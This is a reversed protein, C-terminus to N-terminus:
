EAERPTSKASTFPSFIGAWLVNRVPNTPPILPNINACTNTLYYFPSVSAWFPQTGPELSCNTTTGCNPERAISRWAGEIWGDGSCTLSRATAEEVSEGGVGEQVKWELWRHQTSGDRIQKVGAQGRGAQLVSSPATLRVIKNVQQDLLKMSPSFSVFWCIPSPLYLLPKLIVWFIGLWM